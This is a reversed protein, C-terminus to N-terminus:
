KKKNKNIVDMVFLSFDEDNEFETQEYNVQVLKEHTRETPIKTKLVLKLYPLDKHIWYYSGNLVLSSYYQLKDLLLPFIAKLPKKAIENSVEDGSWDTKKAWYDFSFLNKSDEEDLGVNSIDDILIKGCELVTNFTDLLQVETWADYHWTDTYLEFISQINRLITKHAFIVDVIGNTFAIKQVLITSIINETKEFSKLDISATNNKIELLNIPSLFEITKTKESGDLLTTAQWFISKTFYIKETTLDVAFVIVHTRYSLETWYALTTQKIGNITPRGDSARIYLDEASKVQAKLYRGIVRENLVLEIEFDIGYDNETANRFIGLDKLKYLLIAFSDSQSKHQKIRKPFDM